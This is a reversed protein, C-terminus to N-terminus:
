NSAFKIIRQKLRKYKLKLYRLSYLYYREAESMNIWADYKPFVYDKFFKVWYETIKEEEFEQSRQKGNEVMSLYLQQNNQLNKIAQLCDEVSNVLCFDLDSNRLSMYASEPTLIAPVGARWCNILKSAPKNDYKNGDFSRVAIVVDLNQYNNWDIKNFVPYWTCGLTKLSDVWYDSLLEKTLNCKTGIFAINKVESGRNPSRPILSPQPWPSIYYPNWIHIDNRLLDVSNQVIHLFASPHFERDGKACILMTKGHYPYNNGLSDRDALVIGEKPITDVIECSFGIKKLCNYTRVIWFTFNDSVGMWEQSDQHFLHNRRGGPSYFYVTNM